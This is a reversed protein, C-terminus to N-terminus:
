GQPADHFLPAALPSALLRPVLRSYLDRGESTKIAHEVAWTQVGYADGRKRKHIPRILKRWEAWAGPDGGETICIMDDLEAKLQGNALAFLRDCGPRREVASIIDIAAQPLYLVLDKPKGGRSKIRRHGLPADQPVTRIHLIRRKLDVESWRLQAIETFRAGLL